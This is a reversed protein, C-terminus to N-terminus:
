SLTSASWPSLQLTSARSSPKYTLTQCATEAATRSIEVPGAIQSSDSTINNPVDPTNVPPTSHSVHPRSPPPSRLVPVVSIDQPQQGKPASMSTSLPTGQSIPVDRMTPLPKGIGPISRKVGKGKKVKSSSAFKSSAFERQTGRAPSPM